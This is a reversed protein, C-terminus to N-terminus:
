WQVDDTNRFKCRTCYAACFCVNMVLKKAPTLRTEPRSLWSVLRLPLLLLAVSFLAFPSASGWFARRISDMGISGTGGGGDCVSRLTFRVVASSDHSYQVPPYTVSVHLAFVCLACPKM